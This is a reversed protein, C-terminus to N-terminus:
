DRAGGQRRLSDDLGNTGQTPTGDGIESRRGGIESTRRYFEAERDSLYNQRLLQELQEMDVDRPQGAAGASTIVQAGAQSPLLRVTQAISMVTFAIAVLGVSLL